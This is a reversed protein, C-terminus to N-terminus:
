CLRQISKPIEKISESLKDIALFPIGIHDNAKYIRGQSSLEEVKNEYKLAKHTSYPFGSLTLISLYQYAYYEHEPQYIHYVEAAIKAYISSIKTELPM